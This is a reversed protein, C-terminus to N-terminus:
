QDFKTVFPFNGTDKLQLEEERVGMVTMGLEDKLDYIREGKAVYRKTVVSCVTDGKRCVQAGLPFSVELLRTEAARFVVEQSPMVRYLIKGEADKEHNTLVMYTALGTPDNGSSDVIFVEQGLVFRPPPEQPGPPPITQELNLFPDQSDYHTFASIPDEWEVPRSPDMQSTLRASHEPTM